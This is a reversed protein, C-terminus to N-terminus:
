KFHDIAVKKLYSLQSQAPLVQIEELDQDWIFTRWTSWTLSRSAIAQAWSSEQQDLWRIYDQKTARTKAGVTNDWYSLSKGRCEEHLVRDVWYITVPGPLQAYEDIYDLAWPGTIVLDSLSPNDNCLAQSRAIIKAIPWQSSSEPQWADWAGWFLRSASESNQNKEVLVDRLEKSLSGSGSGLLGLVIHYHM